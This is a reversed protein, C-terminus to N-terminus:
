FNQCKALFRFCFFEIMGAGEPRRKNSLALYKCCMTRFPKQKVYPDDNKFKNIPLITADEALNYRLADSAVPCKLINLSKTEFENNVNLDIDSYNNSDSSQEQCENSHADNDINECPIPSM